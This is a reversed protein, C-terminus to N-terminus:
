PKKNEMNFVNRETLIIIILNKNRKDRINKEISMYIDSSSDHM